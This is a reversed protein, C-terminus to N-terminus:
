GDGAEAAPRLLAVPCPAAHLVQQAVSGAIVQSLGSRGHSTMAVLADRSDALYRVIADGPEGHLVEWEVAMGPEDRLRRALGRVYGYEMAEAHREGAATAVATADTGVVNLLQLRAGLQRALTVAHPLVAESLRCGDVCVMLTAVRSHRRADFRPGCLLVPRSARRVVGAAVSGLLVESMPRRGRASMCLASDDRCALEALYAEVSDHVAVELALDDDAQAALMRHLVARRAEAQAPTKVVSTVVPEAGLQAALQRGLTVGRLADDSEDMAVYLKHM